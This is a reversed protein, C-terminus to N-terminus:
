PVLIHKVVAKIAGIIKYELGGIATDNGIIDVEGTM